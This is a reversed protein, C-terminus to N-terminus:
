ARCLAFHTHFIFGERRSDSTKHWKIDVQARRFNRLRFVATHIFRKRAAENGRDARLYICKFPFQGVVKAELFDLRHAAPGCGNMKSKPRKSDTGTINHKTRVQGEYRRDIRHTVQAGFRHQHVHLILVPRDIGLPHPLRDPGQFGLSSGDPCQNDNMGKANGSLDFLQHIDGVRLINADKFIARAGETGPHPVTRDAAEPIRRGEREVTVLNECGAPTSCEIDPILGQAFRGATPRVLALLRARHTVLVLGQPVIVFKGVDARCDPEGLKFREGRAKLALLTNEFAVLLM